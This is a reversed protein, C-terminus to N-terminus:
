PLESELFDQLNHCIETWSKLKMENRHSSPRWEGGNIRIWMYTTGYHLGTKGDPGHINGSRISEILTDDPLLFKFVTQKKGNLEIQHTDFMPVGESRGM